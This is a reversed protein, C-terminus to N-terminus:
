KEKKEKKEKKKKSNKAKAIKRAKRAFIPPSSFNYYHSYYPLSLTSQLSLDFFCEHNDYMADCV